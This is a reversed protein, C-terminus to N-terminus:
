LRGSQVRVVLGVWDILRDMSGDMCVHLGDLWISCTTVVISM